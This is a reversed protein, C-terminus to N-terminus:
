SFHTIFAADLIAANCSVKFLGLQGGMGTNVYLYTDQRFMHHQANFYSIVRYGYVAMAHLGAWVDRIVVDHGQAQFCLIGGAFPVYNFGDVFVTMLKGTQLHTMFSPNLVGAPGMVNVSAFARGHRAAYIGLGDLYDPITVGNNVIKMDIVLQANLAATLANATTWRWNGLFYSGATHGPILGPLYKNYWAIINSGAVVGCGLTSSYGPLGPIHVFITSDHKYAYHITETVVGIQTGGFYQDAFYKAQAERTDDQVRAPVAMGLGSVVFVLTLLTGFVKTIINM